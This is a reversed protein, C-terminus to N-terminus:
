AALNTITPIWLEIEFESRRMPYPVATPDDLDRYVSVKTRHIGTIAARNSSIIQSIAQVIKYRIIEDTILRNGNNDYKHICWVNVDAMYSHDEKAFGFGSPAVPDTLMGVTVLADFNAMVQDTYWQSTVLVNAKTVNDDKTVSLNATLLNLLLQKPDQM